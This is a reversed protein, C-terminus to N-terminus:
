RPEDTLERLMAFPDHGCLAMVVGIVIVLPLFCVGAILITWQKANM